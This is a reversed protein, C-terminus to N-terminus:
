PNLASDQVGRTSASNRSMISLYILLNVNLLMFVPGVLSAVSLCKMQVVCLVTYTVIGVMIYLNVVFSHAWDFSSILFLFILVHM